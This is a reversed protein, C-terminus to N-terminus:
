LKQLPLYVSADKSSGIGAGWEIFGERGSGDNDNVLFSYGFYPDGSAIGTDAWPVRVVYTTTKAVADRTISVVATSVVGPTGSYRYVVPGTSLLTAGFEAIAGGATPLGPTFGFQISDGRWLDAAATDPTHSDDTVIAIVNLYTADHTVAMNGSLDSTGGLSGGTGVWHGSAALDATVVHPGGQLYAPAFATSGSLSGTRGDSLTFSISYAHPSWLPLGATPIVVDAAGSVFATGPSLTGSLSGVSWTVSAVTVGPTTTGYGIRLVAAGSSSAGATTVPILVATPNKQVVTSVYRVAILQSGRTVTITIRKSGTDAFAPITLAGTTAAGATSAVTVSQGTSATFTVSGTLPTAVGTNDVTVTVPIDVHQLSTASATAGFTSPSAVAIASVTAGSLFIPEDTLQLQVEGGERVLTRSAGLYETVTPNASATVAVTAGGPAWMVRRIAGGSNAFRYSYVGTAISDVGQYAYGDLQRALVEYAVWAPKPVLAGRTESENRLLGFRAEPNLPDPWDDILDYVMYQDAGAALSMVADRTIFRAQQDEDVGGRTSGTTPWGTEGLWLPTATGGPYADVLARAAAVVSATAGEPANPTAYNHIAIVDVLDLGDLDLFDELWSMSTQTGGLWWDTLGGLSPGVIRASPAADRIREVAPTVLDVYCQASRGCASTNTVVNPENYVEYDVDSGYHLAVAEAYDAYAEIGAPTSPTLGGEYLPNNYGLIVSVDSGASRLAAVQADTVADFTYVGASKEVDEWRMDLRVAGLGLQEALPGHDVSPHTLPHVTTGLPRTGSYASGHDAVVALSSMTTHGGATLALTYYGVPLTNLNVTAPASAVNVSGSDVTLNNRDLVKWTVPSASGSLTLSATGPAFILSSNMVTVQDNSNEFGGNVLLDTTTGQQVLSFEDLWLTGTSQSVLVIPLVTQDAATTYNWTVQQWAYTGTPLVQQGSWDGTFVVVNTPSGAADAAIGDGKVWVSFEYTTSPSVPVGQAIGGYKGGTRTTANVIKISANGAKKSTADATHTLDAGGEAYVNWGPFAQSRDITAAAPLAPLLSLVLMAVVAAFGTFHIRRSTASTRVREGEFSLWM